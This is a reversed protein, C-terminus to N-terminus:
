ANAEAHQLRDFHEYSIHEAWARTRRPKGEPGYASRWADKETFGEGLVCWRFRNRASEAVIVWIALEEGRDNLQQAASTGAGTATTQINM